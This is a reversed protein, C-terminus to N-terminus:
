VIKNCHRFYRLRRLIVLVRCLSFITDQPVQSVRRGTELLRGHQSFADIDMSDMSMTQQSSAQSSSANAARLSHMDLAIRRLAVRPYVM